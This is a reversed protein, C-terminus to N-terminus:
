LLQFPCDPNTQVEYKVSPLLFSPLCVRPSSSPLNLSPLYFPCPLGESESAILPEQAGM